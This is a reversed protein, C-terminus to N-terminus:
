VIPKLLLSLLNILIIKPENTTELAWGLIPEGKSAPRLSCVSNFTIAQGPYVIPSIVFANVLIDVCVQATNNSYLGICVGCFLHTTEKTLKKCQNEGIATLSLLDGISINENDAIPITLIDPTETKYIIEFPKILNDM